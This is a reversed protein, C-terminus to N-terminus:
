FFFKRCAKNLKRFLMFNSDKILFFVLSFSRRESTTEPLRPAVNDNYLVGIKLVIRCFICGQEFRDFFIYGVYDIARTKKSTYMPHM